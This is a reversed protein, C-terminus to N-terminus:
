LTTPVLAQPRPYYSPDKHVAKNNKKKKKKEGRLSFIECAPESSM